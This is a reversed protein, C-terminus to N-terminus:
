SEGNMQAPSIGNAALQSLFSAVDERMEDVPLGYNAALEAALSEQTRGEYLGQLLMAGTENLQLPRKWVKGTQAMDILWYSGAAERLQFNGFMQNM